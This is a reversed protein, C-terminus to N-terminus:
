DQQGIGLPYGPYQPIQPNILRLLSRYVDIIYNWTIQGVIGDPSIGLMRQFSVVSNRTDSDFIGTQSPASVQPYFEGIATLYQQLLYVQDGSSGQRLPTGGYPAIEFGSVTDPIVQTNGIFVDYIKEWTAADVEGSAPLGYYNQFAIVSNKTAEDFIGTIEPAPIFNNFLSNVMLFYQLIDVGRITDGEKLVDPFQLSELGYQIGESEVEALKKVVSYIYSIRYWTGKGVIGDVPLNFIEQFKRVASETILDFEGSVPYIKPINPYNGAIRNLRTQILRVDANFDGRRLPTGPYSEIDGAIPVDVVLEIDDGYYHQLIEFSNLGQEALAVTGWQSLGECQTNVGDCYPSIYPSVQGTRRIYSDFIEDVINSINDFIDRGYIFSHDFQTSNTIDFDYGQSRYWETYIRNLTYSLQAYINARIASEPWTPYIESSAVNKIYDIFPVTVNQANSDPRGLHVTITEPIIPRPLVM